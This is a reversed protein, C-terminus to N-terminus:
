KKTGGTLINGGRYKLEAEFKPAYYKIFNADNGTINVDLTVGKIDMSNQVLEQIAKAITPADNSASVSATTSNPAIQGTVYGNIISRRFAPDSYGSQMLASGGGAELMGQMIMYSDSKSFDFNAIKSLWEYTKEASSKIPTLVAKIFSEAVPAIENYLGSNESAFSHLKNLVGLLGTEEDWDGVLKDWLTKLAENFPSVKKSVEEVIPKLNNVTDNYLKQVGFFNNLYESAGIISDSYLGMRGVLGTGGSLGLANNTLAIGGWLQKQMEYAELLSIEGEQVKKVYSDWAQEAQEPTTEIGYLGTVKEGAMEAINQTTIDAGWPNKLLTEPKNSQIIEDIKKVPNTSEENTGLINLEDFGLLSKKLKKTAEETEEINETASDFANSIKDNTEDIEVGNKELIRDFFETNRGTEAAWQRLKKVTEISDIVLSETEQWFINKVAGVVGNVIGSITGLLLDTAYKILRPLIEPIFNIVAETLLEFLSSVVKETLKPLVEMINVLANEITPILNDLFVDTADLFADTAKLAEDPTKGMSALLNDWAAKMTNASGSITTAAEKATTGAIDLKQQIVGIATYVDALNNIDYKVGSFAEADKLLREMETKTGGYGLKLNDLLQYQQKAFGQFAATVSSMDTGMKNANDSISIIAANAVEAAKETDGGLSNLLSASFSTVNEMYANASMGIKYAEDAYAKVKDASGKFLTEVGGVLQEYDAYASVVKKAMAVAAAGAAAFAGTAIAGFKSTLSNIKQMGSQVGSTDVDTRLTIKGDYAAM